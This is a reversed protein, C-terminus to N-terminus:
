RHLERKHRAHPTHEGRYIRKLTSFHKIPDMVMDKNTEIENCLHLLSKAYGSLGSEAITSLTCNDPVIEDNTLSLEMGHGLYVYTKIPTNM